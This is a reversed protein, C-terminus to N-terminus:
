NSFNQSYYAFFKCISNKPDIAMTSKIQSNFKVILAEAEIKHAAMFTKYKEDLTVFAEVCSASKASHETELFFLGFYFKNFFRL